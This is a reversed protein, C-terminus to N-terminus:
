LTVHSINQVWHTAVLDTAFWYVNNTTDLVLEGAYLPTLPGVTNPNGANTRNFVQFSKDVVPDGVRALNAVIAM